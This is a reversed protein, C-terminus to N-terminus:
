AFCAPVVISLRERAPSSTRTSGAGTSGAGRPCSSGRVRRQAEAAFSGLDRGRVNCQVVVRRKGNERSIQNPGESVEITAVSGLPVFGTRRARVTPPSGPETIRMARPSRSRSSRSRHVDERFTTPCACSWTSAATARSCSGRKAGESRRPSSTRSTPSALGVRAIAQRDIRVDMVPLGATQEVRVDAAGRIERLLGAIREAAREMGHFDDGYVKVAVDGRVGAILENFRMQIPQTFEFNNGPGRRSRRRSGRASSRSRLDPDPWRERPELVIFTDSVNPPMPDSAMEATGTKSFVFAV